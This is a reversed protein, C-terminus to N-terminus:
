AAGLDRAHTPTGAEWAAFRPDAALKARHAETAAGRLLSPDEVKGCLRESPQQTSEPNVYHACKDRQQCWGGMCPVISM